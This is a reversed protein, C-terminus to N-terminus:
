ESQENPLREQPINDEANSGKFGNFEEASNNLTENAKLLSDENLSSQSRENVNCEIKRLNQNTAQQDPLAIHGSYLPFM